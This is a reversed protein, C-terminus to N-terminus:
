QSYAPKSHSQTFPHTGEALLVSLKKERHTLSHSKKHKEKKIKVTTKKREKGKKKEEKLQQATHM